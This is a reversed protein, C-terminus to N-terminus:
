KDNGLPRGLNEIIEMGRARLFDQVSPSLDTMEGVIDNFTDLDLCVESWLQDAVQERRSPVTGVMAAAVTERLGTTAYTLNEAKGNLELQERAQVVVREVEAEVSAALALRANADAQEMAMQIDTTVAFSGVGCGPIPTTAMEPLAIGSSEPPTKPGCAVVLPVVCILCLRFKM